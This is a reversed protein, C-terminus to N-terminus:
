KAAKKALKWKELFKKEMDRSSQEYQAPTMTRLFSSSCGVGNNGHLVVVDPTVALKFGAMQARLCLDDDDYSNGDFQEDLYGIKEFVERRIYVCPFCLRQHSIVPGDHLFKGYDQLDNGVIGSILPSLIGVTGGKTKYSTAWGDWYAIANLRALDGQRLLQVDDNVLLVDGDCAKIGINAAKPFSWPEPCHVVQWGEARIQEHWTTAAYVHCDCETCEAMSPPIPLHRDERHSCKCLEPPNSAEGSTVVIKRAKPEYLEVSRYLCEFIDVNATLTVITPDAM